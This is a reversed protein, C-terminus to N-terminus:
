AAIKKEEVGFDGRATEDLEILKDLASDILAAGRKAAYAQALGMALGINLATTDTIALDLVKAHDGLRHRLHDVYDATEVHRVFDPERGAPKSATPKPQKVGGIWQPGPVIADPCRVASSPLRDFPVSGDVGMEELIKRAELVESRVPHGDVPHAICPKQYPEAHLPSIAGKLALYSWVEAERRGAKVQGGKVGRRREDPQLPRGKATVGWQRLEGDRFALSGIRADLSGSRNTSYSVEPPEADDYTNAMEGTHDWRERGTVKRGVAGLLEAESPRIEIAVEPEYLQDDAEVVTDRPFSLDRWHRLARLRVKDGRYALRELAPWALVDGAPKNDNAAKRVKVVKPKTAVPATTQEALMEALKSFDRAITM